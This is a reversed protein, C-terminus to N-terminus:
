TVPMGHWPPPNFDDGDNYPPPETPPYECPDSCYKDCNELCKHYQGLIQHKRAASTIDVGLECEFLRPIDTFFQKLCSKKSVDARWKEEDLYYDLHIECRLKCLNYNDNLCEIALGM